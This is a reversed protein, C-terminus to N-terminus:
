SAPRMAPSCCSPGTSNRVRGSAAWRTRHRAWDGFAPEELARANIETRFFGPAIANVRVGSGAWQTALERTLM